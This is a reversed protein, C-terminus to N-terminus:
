KMCFPIFYDGFITKWGTELSNITKESVEGIFEARYSLVTNGDDDAFGFKEYSLTPGGFEGSLMGRVQLSNPYDVGIVEGWVLGEENGFDEYMKGGLKTEIKFSVTRPNTYFDSSWWKDLQNFFRDWVYDNPKEIKYDQKFSNM